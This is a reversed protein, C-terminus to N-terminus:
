KLRFLAITLNRSSSVNELIPLLTTLHTPWIQLQDSLCRRSLSGVPESWRLLTLLRSCFTSISWFKSKPIMLRPQSKRMPRSFCEQKIKANMQIKFSGSKRPKLCLTTSPLLYQGFPKTIWWLNRQPRRWSSQNTDTWVLPDRLTSVPPILLWIRQKLLDRGWPLSMRSTTRRCNSTSSTKSRPAFNKLELFRHPILRQM